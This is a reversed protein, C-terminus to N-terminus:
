TKELLVKEKLWKNILIETPIKKSKAIKNIKTIITNDVKFIHKKNKINIDLSVEPLYKLYDGMDNKDFFNVLETLSNFNPLKKINKQM